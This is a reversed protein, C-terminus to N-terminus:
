KIFRFGLVGLITDQTKLGTSFKLNEKPLYDKLIDKFDNLTIGHEKNEDMEEFKKHLANIKLEKGEYKETAAHFWKEVAQTRVGTVPQKLFTDASNFVAVVLLGESSKVDVIDVSLDAAHVLSACVLPVLLGLFKTFKQM